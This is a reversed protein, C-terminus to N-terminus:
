RIKPIRKLAAPIKDRIVHLHLRSLDLSVAPSTLLGLREPLTPVFRLELAIPAVVAKRGTAGSVFSLPKGHVHSHFLTFSYRYFNNCALRSVKNGERVIVATRPLFWVVERTDPGKYSRCRGPM